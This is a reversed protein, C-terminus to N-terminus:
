CMQNCLIYMGSPVPTPPAPESTSPMEICTCSTDDIVEFDFPCLDPCLDNCKGPPKSTFLVNMLWRFFGVTETEYSGDGIKNCFFYSSSLTSILLEWFNDTDGDDDENTQLIRLKKVPLDGLHDSQYSKGLRSLNKNTQMKSLYKSHIGHSENASEPGLSPVTAAPRAGFVASQAKIHADRGEGAVASSADRGFSTAAYLVAFVLAMLVALITFLTTVKTTKTAM